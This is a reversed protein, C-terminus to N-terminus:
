EAFDWIGDTMPDAGGIVTLTMTSYKWNGVLPATVIISYQMPNPPDYTVPGLSYNSMLFYKGDYDGTSQGLGGDEVEDDIEGTPGVGFEACYAKLATAITGCGAQAETWKSKEIQTTLLPVAVAALIAVILIVILLEILTFGKSKM